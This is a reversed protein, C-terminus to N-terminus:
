FYLYLCVLDKTNDSIEDWEPSRFSYKGQMIQRLMLYEKRNWFPPFGVLLTYMIVGCAWVDVPQGYPPQGEYYGCRLVEPALYGPTGRTELFIIM